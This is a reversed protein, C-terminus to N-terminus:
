FPIEEVELAVGARRLKRACSSGVAHQGMYGPDTTDIAAVEGELVFRAGGDIVEAHPATRPNPVAKGCLACPEAGEACDEATREYRSGSFPAITTM